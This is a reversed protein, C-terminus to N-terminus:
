VGVRNAVGQARHLQQRLKPLLGKAFARLEPNEGSQVETEFLKVMDEHGKVQGAMYQRDFNSGHLSALQEHVNHEQSDLSASTTMNLRRAVALLRDKSHTHEAVMHEAFLRVLHHHGKQHALRSLDIEALEGATTIDLFQQDTSAAPAAPPPAAPPTPQPATPPESQFWNPWGSGGCGALMLLAVFSLTLGASRRM